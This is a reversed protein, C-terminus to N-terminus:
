SINIKSILDYEFGRGLLYRVTKINKQYNQLGKIKSRYSEWQKLLEREYDAEDIEDM